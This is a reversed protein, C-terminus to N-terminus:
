EDRVADPDVDIPGEEDEPADAPFGTDDPASGGSADAGPDITM